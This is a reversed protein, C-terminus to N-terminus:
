FNWKIKKKGKKRTRRAKRIKGILILIVMGIILYLILLLLWGLSVGQNKVKVIKSKEEFTIKNNYVVRGSIQYDGAKEPV